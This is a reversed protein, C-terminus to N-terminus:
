LLDILFLNEKVIVAQLHSKSLHSILPHTSLLVCYFYVFFFVAILTQLIVALCCLTTFLQMEIFIDSPAARFAPSPIFQDM